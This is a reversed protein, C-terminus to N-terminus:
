HPTGAVDPLLCIDSGPAPPTATAAGPVTPGKQGITRPVSGTPKSGTHPTGAHPTAPNAAMPTVPEPVRTWTEGGCLFGLVCGEVKLQNPSSLKISSEYTKGDKANYIHGNWKGREDEDRQMDLLVPMGLTPRGRKTKDPNKADVGGPTQETAVVGWLHGNCDAIRITAVGEKVRWEGPIEAAHAAGMTVGMAGLLVIASCALKRMFGRAPQLRFYVTNETSTGDPRDHAVVSKETSSRGM